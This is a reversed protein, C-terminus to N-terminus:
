ATRREKNRHPRIGTATRGVTVSPEDGARLTRNEPDYTLVVGDARLRDILEATSTRRV